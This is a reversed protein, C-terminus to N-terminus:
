FSSRYTAIIYDKSILRLWCLCDIYDFVLLEKEAHLGNEEASVNPNALFLKYARNAISKHSIMKGAILKEFPSGSPM